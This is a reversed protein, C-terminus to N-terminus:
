VESMDCIVVDWISFVFWHVDNLHERAYSAEMRYIPEYVVSYVAPTQYFFIESDLSRLAHVAIPPM